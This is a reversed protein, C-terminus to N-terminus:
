RLTSYSSKRSFACHHMLEAESSDVTQSDPGVVLSLDFMSRSEKESVAHLKSEL